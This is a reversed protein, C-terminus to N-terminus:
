SAQKLPISFIVRQIATSTVPGDCDGNEKCRYYSLRGGIAFWGYLFKRGPILCGFYLMRFRQKRPKGERTEGSHVADYLGEAPDVLTLAYKATETQLHFTQGVELQCVMISGEPPVYPPPAAVPPAPLPVPRPEEAPPPPVAATKGRRAAVTAVVLLVAIAAMFILEFPSM